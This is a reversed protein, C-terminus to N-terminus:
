VDGFVIFQGSVVFQGPLGVISVERFIRPIPNIM